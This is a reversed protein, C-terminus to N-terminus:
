QRKYRQSRSLEQDMLEQFYRHNYLGTLSDRFVMERLRDNAEKLDSALKEAKEKAQKLEMVLMEYSLNLSSLEDNAEQLIQSFPKMKGPDVEFLSLIEISKSAVSDVLSEVDPQDLSFNQTLVDKINRM